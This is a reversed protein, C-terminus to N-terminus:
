VRAYLSLVITTIWLSCNWLFLTSLAGQIKCLTNVEYVIDDILTVSASFMAALSLHAIMRQSTEKYKKFFIILFITFMCCIISLSASARKARVLATCKWNEGKFLQCTDDQLSMTDNTVDTTFELSKSSM